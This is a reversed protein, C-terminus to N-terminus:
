EGCFLSRPFRLFELWPSYSNVVPYNGGSGELLESSLLMSKAHM